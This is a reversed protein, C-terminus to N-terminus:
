ASIVLSILDHRIIPCMKPYKLPLKARPLPWVHSSLSKQDYQDCSRDAPGRRNRSDRGLATSRPELQSGLIIGDIETPQAFLLQLFEELLQGFQLCRLLITIVPIQRLILLVQILILIQLIGLVIVTSSTTGPVSHLADDSSLQHLYGFIDSSTGWATRIPWSYRNYRDWSYWYLAVAPPTSGLVM